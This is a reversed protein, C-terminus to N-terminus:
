KALSKVSAVVKEVDADSMAPFLPLSLAHAYFHEANPCKGPAYGYTRRYWPQLYVPIYLVQTGVGQDRVEQMVKTRTKGLRPFDIQLTYLHLSLDSLQYSFSSDLTSFRPDLTNSAASAVPLPYRTAPSSARGLAPTQLWDLTSFAQNYRLAIQQRRAIFEPLRKLQSRGLASQLDTIRYNYGLDQMEYYWPGREALSSQDPIASPPNPKASYQFRFDSHESDDLGTFEDHNRTIGHTRLLRAKAAWEDNETLLIGGEGTTLTKVPHFSFTTIDAWPHGGLKWKRGDVEFGGGTGHCADEIVYAGRSRAIRAIEPMDCPQGAYDVAVVAKTDPKWNQELLVPDLNYSKPDIDSFDPTAGIYAAANASAVFTNPSTVVRDGKGIGLVQMALHLAATANCVAVAHKAGVFAAFEKEFAEVEPGCTLFDSRLSRVVAEIDDDSISQRGYPIM